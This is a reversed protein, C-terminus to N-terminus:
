LLRFFAKLQRLNPISTVYCVQECNFGRPQLPVTLVVNTTSAHAREKVVPATYVSTALALSSANSAIASKTSETAKKTVFVSVAMVTGCKPKPLTEYKKSMMCNM